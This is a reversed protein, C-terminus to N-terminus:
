VRIWSRKNKSSPHAAFPDSISIGKIHDSTNHSGASLKANLNEPGNKLTRKPLNERESEPVNARPFIDSQKIFRLPIKCVVSM